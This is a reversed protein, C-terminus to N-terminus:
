SAEAAIIKLAADALGTALVDPTPVTPLLAGEDRGIWATRLGCRKAGAVDWWHAAVMWTEAAPAGGALVGAEYVRHDPKYVEVADAGIVKDVLDSLGASELALRAAEAGSNTLVHVSLGAEELARLAPAADDFPPLARAMTAGQEALEPPLGAVAALQALSAQIYDLFPRFEGTITDVMAQAVADDLARLAVGRPAGPWGATMAGADLLTGNLDFLVPM